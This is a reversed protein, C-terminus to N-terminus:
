FYFLQRQRELRIIEDTTGDNLIRLHIFFLIAELTLM